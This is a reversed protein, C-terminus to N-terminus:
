SRGGVGTEDSGRRGRVPAAVVADDCRDDPLVQGSGLLSSVLGWHTGLAQILGTILASLTLPVIIFQGILNMALYAGRVIEANRSTLGAISLALFAAVSGLWGVSSVVHATLALKRVRPAM